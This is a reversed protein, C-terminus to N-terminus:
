EKEEECLQFIRDGEVLFGTSNAGNGGVSKPGSCSLEQNNTIILATFSEPVQIKWM